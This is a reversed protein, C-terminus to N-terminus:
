LPPKGGGGSPKTPTVTPAISPRATPRVTPSFTTPYSTPTNPVPALTPTTPTSTPSLTPEASPAVSPQFSPSSSPRMTPLLSPITSPTFSPRLSPATSPSSSPRSSPFASPSTPHISISPLLSPSTTPSKTPSTALRITPAHSPPRPAPPIYSPSPATSPVFTPATSPKFSITPAPSPATTPATSPAVASLKRVTFSNDGVLVFSGDPSIGIAMPRWFGSNSGIGNAYGGDVSGAVSTVARTSIEIQRVQHNSFAGLLAFFGNPSIKIECPNSFQANSGIGNMFGRSSTGALTTVSATSLDIMRIFSYDSVLAILGSPSISVGGLTNFESNTGIGDTWGLSGSGALVTVAATSLIIQRIRRNSKDTVLVYVGTPSFAIGYIEGFNANTGIGNAFGVGAGAFTTVSALSIDIRRILYNFFDAVLAFSSDPSLAVVTPLNFAANSGIGNALGPKGMGALTTVSKTSIIVKRIANNFIDTFLAYDTAISISYSISLQTNTGFGDVFGNSDPTGVFESIFSDGTFIGSADVLSLQLSWLLSLPFSLALCRAVFMKTKDSSKENHKLDQPTLETV